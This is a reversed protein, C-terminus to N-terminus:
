FSDLKTQFKGLILAHIDEAGEYTKVTELNVLHRMIHYEELLGNAGMMDRAKRVIEIAKKCNNRKLLSIAIKLDKGSDMAKGTHLCASLGLTIETQMEALKKQILQNKALPKKFMIRNETYDKSIKWANDAAGLVGWSIGYRANNLCSYVSKWGSTNPLINEKPIKVKDLIIQGTPSIRLSTKNEITSTTLGKTNKPILFLQIDNKDNLAWILFIDSIPANTIWNKAGDIIYHDEKEVFNTKMSSPDSGAESETLGFCGILNGKILDPLYNNKQEESGFHEIPHCVLSSQVSIASRYSSDISEIEFAILGYSVKNIEPSGFGKVTSGLFGMKGFDKYIEKDFFQDRNNKVVKPLLNKQCYIKTNERISKEEDSLFSDLYLPDLWQNDSNM